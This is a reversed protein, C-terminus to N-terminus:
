LFWLFHMLNLARGVLVGPTAKPDWIFVPLGHQPGLNAPGKAWRTLDEISPGKSGQHLIFLEVDDDELIMM